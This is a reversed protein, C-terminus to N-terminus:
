CYVWVTAEDFEWSWNVLENFGQSTDNFNITQNPKSCDSNCLFSAVVLQVKIEVTTNSSNDKADTVNLTVTYNGTSNYTHTTNQEDSSNGDGFTWLWDLPEVGGSDSGYLQFSEGAVVESSETSIEVTRPVTLTVEVSTSGGNSIINIDGSYTDPEMNDATVQLYVNTETSTEGWTSSIEDIWDPYSTIEWVLHSGSEGENKITFEGSVTGGPRVELHVPNPDNITPDKDRTKGWTKFGCDWGTFIVWGNEKVWMSGDVYTDSPDDDNYCWGHYNQAGAATNTTAVLYYDQGEIIDLDPEFNVEIWESTPWQGINELTLTNRRYYETDDNPKEHCLFAFLTRADLDYNSTLRLKARTVTQKDPKFSQALPTFVRMPYYYDPEEEQGQDPEDAKAVIAFINSFIIVFFLIAFLFVSWNKIFYRTM